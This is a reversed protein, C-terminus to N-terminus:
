TKTSATLGEAGFISPDLDIGFYKAFMLREKKGTTEQVYHANAQATELSRRLEPTHQYVDFRVVDSAQMNRHLRALLQEWGKVPPNGVLARDFMQLNKGTGHAKQSVVITRLGTEERIAESAAKGGEYLPFGGLKAVRRGWADHGYWIIGPKERGWAVADAALYDNMWECAEVPIVKKQIERWAPWAKANWVPLEGVYGSHFREAAEELFEPSDMFIERHELASSLEKNWAKRKAYWELILNEPEGRPFRWFYYFGATLQSVCAAREVAETLDENDPRLGRRADRIAESIETPMAGPSRAHIELRNPIAADATTIIGATEVLRRRFGSEVKEGVECLQRLAGMPARGMSGKEPDLAGAWEKAVDSDLPLPSGEHLTLAALHFYQGISDDTLSGSHLFVAVPDPSDVVYRFFRSSVVADLNALKHAEDGVIVTPKHTSFWTACSKRSLMSYAIVQLSPRGAIFEKGGALNPVKFHQSWIEFDRAFQVRLDPPLLLACVKANPVVMPLLIGIGTKGAGAAAFGLVGRDNMAEYLYWGQIPFLSTVCPNQGKAVLGPRLEACRCPTTRERRLLETMISAMEAQEADTPPTRRPLALVRELDVSEGVPDRGYRNKRSANSILWKSDIAQGSLGLRALIGPKASM